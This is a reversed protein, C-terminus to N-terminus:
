HWIGANKIILKMFNIKAKLFFSNHMDFFNLLVKFILQSPGQPVVGIPTVGNTKYHQIQRTARKGLILHKLDKSRQRIAQLILPM